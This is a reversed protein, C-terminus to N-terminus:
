ERFQGGDDVVVVDFDGIDHTERWGDTLGVCGKIIRYRL